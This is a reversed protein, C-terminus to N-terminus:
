IIIIRREFENPIDSNYKTRVVMNYLEDCYLSQKLMNNDVDNLNPNDNAEKLQGILTLSSRKKIDNLLHSADKKFGLIRAYSAIDNTMYDYVDTETINLIISLLGRSIASYAINKTKLKEIFGTISKFGNSNLVNYIRNSLSSDIGAYISLDTNLSKEFLLRQGLIQSFDDICLSSPNSFIMEYKKDFSILENFNNGCNIANRLSTASYMVNNTNDEHYSAKVRKLAIPKINSNIHTLAKLYEIALINNPKDIIDSLQNKYKKDDSSNDSYDKLGLSRASAYSLGDKSYAKIYANLSHSPDKKAIYLVDAISSLLNLDDCECGFCLYDVIGTKNLLNVAAYAFYEASLHSFPIPLELIIDAGHNLAIETRTYKDLFAPTGRQVFNGSMIVIATDAGTLEKAKKIHYEHGMHFPNYETILGVISM